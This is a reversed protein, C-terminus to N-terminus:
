NKIFKRSMMGSDSTIKIVYSGTKLGSVDITESPNADVQVLQGIINYICITKLNINQPLKINL